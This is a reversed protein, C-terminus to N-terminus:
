ENNKHRNKKVFLLFHMLKETLSYKRMCGALCPKECALIELRQHAAIKSFWLNNLSDQRVNGIPPFWPCLQVDGTHAIYLNRFGVTCHRKSPLQNLGRFFAKIMQLDKVPMVIPYGEKKYQILLEIQRDLEILDDIRAMPMSFLKESLPTEFVLEPPHIDLIPQFDISDIGLNRTWRVFEDLYKYTDKTILCLVGVRPPYKKQKFYKITSVIRQHLGETGKYYNHLSPEVSNLSFILSDVNTQLVRECTETDFVIGNTSVNTCLQLSNTYTLLDYFNEKVFPEGGTFSINCSGLWQSLELIVNKCEDYSLEKDDIINKWRLCTICRANCRYTVSFYILYPLNLCQQFHKGISILFDNKAVTLAYRLFKTKM